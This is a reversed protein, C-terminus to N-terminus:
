TLPWVTRTKLIEDPVPYSEVHEWVGYFVNMKHEYCASRALESFVEALWRVVTLAYYRGYKQVIEAQGTRISAELPSSMLSNTENVFLVSSFSGMLLQAEEANREVRRQAAKGYYHTGLIADAVSNWWVEIPEHQGLNPDGLEHFNAYRGRGADAFSDLCEIIKPTIDDSPRPYQLGLQRIRAVEDVAEILRVIKHGFKKVVAQGPLRGGNTLAYEVVLVLKALREIGISLGFFATYYEGVKDAYSARGLATAGSGVLQSVLAAERGVARWGPIEWPNRETM